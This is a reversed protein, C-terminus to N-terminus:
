GGREGVWLLLKTTKIVRMPKQRTGQDKGTNARGCGGHNDWLSTDFEMRADRELWCSIVGWSKYTQTRTKSIYHRCANRSTGIGIRWQKRRFMHPQWTSSTRIGPPLCQNIDTRRRTEQMRDGVDKDGVNKDGADETQQRRGWSSEEKKPAGGCLRCSVWECSCRKKSKDRGRAILNCLLGLFSM